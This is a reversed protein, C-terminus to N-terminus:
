ARYGLAIKIRKIQKGLAGSIKLQNLIERIQAPKVGDRNTMRFHEDICRGIAKSNGEKVTLYINLWSEMLENSSANVTRKAM